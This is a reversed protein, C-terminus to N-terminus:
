SAEGQLVKRVKNIQEVPVPLFTKAVVDPFYKVLEPLLDAVQNTTNCSVLVADTERIFKLIEDLYAMLPRYVEFIKKKVLASVSLNCYPKEPYSKSLTFDWLSKVGLRHCLGSYQVGERYGCMVGEVNLSNGWSMFGRYSDIHEWDFEKWEKAYAKDIEKVAEKILKEVKKAYLAKVASTVVLDKTAKSMANSGM